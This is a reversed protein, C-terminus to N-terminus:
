AERIVTFLSRGPLATTSGLAAFTVDYTTYDANSFPVTLGGIITARPIEITIFKGDSQRHTFKLDVVQLNLKDGVRVALAATDKSDYAVMVALNKSASGPKIKSVSTMTWGTGGRVYTTQQDVSTVVVSTMSVASNGLTKVTTTSGFLIEEWARFTTTLTLQTTSLTLGLSSILQPIKFDAISAKLAARESIKDRRVVTLRNGPQQEVTGVEYSFSVAGKLNGVRVYKGSAATEPKMFLEGPGLLLNVTQVSM